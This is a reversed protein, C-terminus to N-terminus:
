PLTFIRQALFDDFFEWFRDQLEDRERLIEHRAGHIIEYRVDPFERAAKTIAKQSVVRDSDGAVLLVPVKINRLYGKSSVKKISEIAANLWGYTVDGIALDPNRSIEKEEQFFRDPDSTLRNNEFGKLVSTYYRSGIVYERELGMSVAARICIRALAPSLPTFNIGFMPSVLVCADIGTPSKEALYRVCVNAGMSHALFIVPLNDVSVPSVIKCLISHLDDMYERFSGVYGKMRDPLLRTSLGQGRWDFAVVLLDRSVLRQYAETNKEIFEARGSLHVVIGCPKKGAQCATMWRIAVQDRSTIVGFRQEM